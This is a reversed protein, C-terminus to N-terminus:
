LGPLGKKKQAKKRAAAEKELREQLIIQEKERAEALRKEIIAITERPHSAYFTTYGCTGCIAITCSFDYGRPYCSIEIRQDRAIYCQNGCAPCPCSQQQETNM